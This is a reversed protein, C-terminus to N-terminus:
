WGGSDLGMRLASKSCNNNTQNIKVNRLAGLYSQLKGNWKEKRISRKNGLMLKVDWRM